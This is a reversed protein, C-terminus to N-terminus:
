TLALTPHGVFPMGVVHDLDVYGPRQGRARLPDCRRV